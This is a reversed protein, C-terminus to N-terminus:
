QPALLSEVTNLGKQVEAKTMNDPGATTDATKLVVRYLNSLNGLAATKDSSLAGAASLRQAKIATQECRGNQKWEQSVQAGVALSIANPDYPIFKRAQEFDQAARTLSDLRDRGSVYESIGALQLAVANTTDTPQVDNSLVFDKLETVARSSLEGPLPENEADAVRQRLYGACGEIFKLEPLLKDLPMGELGGAAHIWGQKNEYKVPDMRQIRIWEGRKEEVYFGAHVSSDDCGACKAVLEPLPEGPANDNPETRIFDAKRYSDEVQELEHKSL